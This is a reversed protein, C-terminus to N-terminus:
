VFLWEWEYINYGRTLTTFLCYFFFQCYYVNCLFSFSRSTITIPLSIIIYSFQWTLSFCPQYRVVFLFQSTYPLRYIFWGKCHYTRHFIYFIIGVNLWINPEWLNLFILSLNKFIFIIFMIFLCAQYFSLIYCSFLLLPFFPLGLFLCIYLYCSSHNLSLWTSTYFVLKFSLRHM